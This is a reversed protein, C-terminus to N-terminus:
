KNKLIKGGSWFVFDIKKVNPLNNNKFTEDFLKLTSDLLNNSLIAKYTKSIENYQMVYNKLRKEYDKEDPRTFNFVRSAESDYIPYANNVTHMLKTTFSFQLSNDGKIRKFQYLRKAVDSPDIVEHDRKEQMIKFYEQKMENTLGASDM